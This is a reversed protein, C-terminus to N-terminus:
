FPIEEEDSWTPAKAGEDYAGEEEVKYTSLNRGIEVAQNYLDENVFGASRFRWNFFNQNDANTEPTSGASFLLSQMPRRNSAQLAIKDNLGQKARKLSSRALSMVCPGLDLADPLLILYEYFLTAAPPSNPDSPDSTGWSALGSKAVDLTTVKWTVKNRKDILVEWEGLRDWTKADDARALIGQKDVLPTQLLYKKRRSCVVFNVGDFARDFGTHWFLGPKAEDYDRCQPSTGQLLKIQPITIDSADFNDVIGTAEAEKLYGPVKNITMEKAM